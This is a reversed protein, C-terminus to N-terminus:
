IKHIIHISHSHNILFPECLNKNIILPKYDNKFFTFSTFPKLSKRRTLSIRKKIDKLVSFCLFSIIKVRACAHLHNVDNVHTYNLKSKLAKAHSGNLYFPECSPECPECKQTIKTTVM